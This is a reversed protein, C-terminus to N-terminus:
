GRLPLADEFDSRYSAQLVVGLLDFENREMRDLDMLMEDPLSLFAEAESPSFQGGLNGSIEERAQAFLLSGRYARSSTMADFADCIGIIRALQPIENGQLGSPYGSGDWHEHHYRCAPAFSQLVPIEELLDAGDDSHRRVRECEISTLRTPKRLIRSPVALKGLDHLYGAATARVQEEESLGMAEALLGSLCAVRKSHGGTYPDKADILSAFLELLVGNSSVPVVPPILAAVAEARVEEHRERTFEPVEGLQDLELWLRAIRPDFESGAGQTVIDRIESSSLAGRHPRVAGLATVTDAIRLVRSGLPIEEGELGLPYGSGDWWEHHHRVLTECGNVYPITGIGAASRTPHSQVEERMRRPLVPVPNEWASEALGIMGMDSLVAGFYLYALDKESLGLHVGVEHALVSTRPGHEGLYGKASSMGRALAELLGEYFVRGEMSTTKYL